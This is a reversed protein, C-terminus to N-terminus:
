EPLNRKGYLSELRIRGVKMHNLGNCQELPFDHCGYHALVARIGKEVEDPTEAFQCEGIGIVSEYRTTIGHETRQVGLFRDGEVCVGAHEQLLELKMGQKACHFYIVPEENEVAMGFSVPVVYPYEAGQIGIRVTDCKELMELIEKKDTVEREKRRM